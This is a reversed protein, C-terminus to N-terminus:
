FGFIQSISKEARRKAFDSKAYYTAFELLHPLLKDRGETEMWEEFQEQNQFDPVGFNLAPVYLSSRDMFVRGSSLIVPISFDLMTIYGDEISRKPGGFIIGNHIFGTQLKLAEKLNLYLV